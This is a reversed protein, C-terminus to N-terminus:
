DLDTRSGLLCKRGGEGGTRERLGKIELTYLAMPAGYYKARPGPIVQGRSHTFLTPSLTYHNSFLYWDVVIIMMPDYRHLASPLLAHSILATAQSSRLFRHAERRIHIMPRHISAHLCAHLWDGLPRRLRRLSEKGKDNTCTHICAATYTTGDTWVHVCARVCAGLPSAPTEKRRRHSLTSNSAGECGTLPFLRTEQSKSEELPGGVGAGAVVEFGRTCDLALPSHIALPSNIASYPASYPSREASGGSLPPTPPPADTFSAAATLEARTTLSACPRALPRSALKIAPSCAGKCVDVLISYTSYTSTTTPKGPLIYRVM